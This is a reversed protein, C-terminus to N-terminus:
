KLLQSFYRVVREKEDVRKASADKISATLQKIFDGVKGATEDDEIVAPARQAAAVLEDRRALLVSHTEILRDRLPDADSPIRNHGIEAIQNM